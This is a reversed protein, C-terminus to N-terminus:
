SRVELDEYGRVPMPEFMKKIEFKRHVNRHEPTFIGLTFMDSAQM